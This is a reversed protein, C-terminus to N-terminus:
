AQADAAPDTARCDLRHVPESIATDAHKAHHREAAIKTTRQLESYVRENLVIGRLAALDRLLALRETIRPDKIALRGVREDVGALRWIITQLYWEFYAWRVVIRGIERTMSAPLRYDAPGESYEGSPRKSMLSL